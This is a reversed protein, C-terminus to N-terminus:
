EREDQRCARSACYSMLVMRASVAAVDHAVQGAIIHEARESPNATKIVWVARLRQGDILIVVV